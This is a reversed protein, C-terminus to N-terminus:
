ELDVAAPGCFAANRCKKSQGEANCYGEVADHGGENRFFCVLDACFLNWGTSRSVDHARRRSMRSEGGVIGASRPDLRVM